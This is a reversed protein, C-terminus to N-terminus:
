EYVKVIENNIAESIFPAINRVAEYDGNEVIQKAIKDLDEQQVFPAIESLVEYERKEAIKAAIEGIVNSYTGSVWKEQIEEAARGKDKVSVTNQSSGTGAASTAFGAVVGAVLLEAMIYATKSTKKIKMIATIREEAANKSFNSGLPAAHNKEEEMNILLMAYDKKYKCGFHRIVTEDCSLEIDRNVLIYMIWVFPNFWHIGTAIILFLKVAADFKKIHVFEHELIYQINETNEWDTAEPMLIVPHLMGYSLPSKVMCSQRISIRRVSKHSKLWEETLNNSVPLSTCFRKYCLIYATTFVAAYAAMGVIWIFKWISFSGKETINGTQKKIIEEGTVATKGEKQEQGKKGYNIISEAKETIFKNRGAFSYISTISEFSYPVLLRILAVSWLILFVKKPLRNIFLFRCIIVVLIILSAQFGM